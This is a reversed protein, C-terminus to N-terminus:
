EVDKMEQFTRGFDTAMGTAVVVGRGHGHQVTTGMFIVARHAVATVEPDLSCGGLGADDKGCTSGSPGSASGRLLVERSGAKARERAAAAGHRADIDRQLAAAVEPAVAEAKDMLCSEGTLSSEDVMLDTAALLRCDAPVRDGM